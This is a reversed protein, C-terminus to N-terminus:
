AVPKDFQDLFKDGGTVIDGLVQFVKDSWGAVVFVDNRVADIPITEYGELMFLVMKAKPNVKAKYSNFATEFASHGVGAKLNQIDGYIQGDSFFMFWDYHIGQKTAWEIVKNGHTSLGAEGMRNYADMVGSLINTTPRLPIWRNGFMGVTVNPLAHQLVFGLVLAVHYLEVSSRESLPTTMSGSTDGAILISQQSLYDFGPIGATSAEIASELAAYLGKLNYPRAYLEDAFGQGRGYVGRPDGHIMRYASFFRFPFQKAKAAIEQNGILDVLKQFHAASVGAQMVNRINRLAAMYTMDNDIWNEWAAKKAKPDSGAASIQTEWTDIMPLNGEKIAKFVQSQIETAPVPHVLRMVDLFTVSGKGQRNYKSFPYAAQKLDDGYKGFKQFALAIGKQLQKPLKKLESKGTIYQFAKMLETIEDARQVVLPVAEKKLRGQKALAALMVVPATRMYMEGRIYAALNMAFDAPVKEIMSEIEQVRRETAEDEPLSRSYMYRGKSKGGSTKGDKEYFRASMTSTAATVYLQMREDMTYATDGEFNKTRRPNSKSKPQNFRAM